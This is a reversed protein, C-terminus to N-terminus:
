QAVVFARAEVGDALHHEEFHTNGEQRAKVHTGFDALAIVKGYEADFALRDVAYMCQGPAFGRRQAIEEPAKGTEELLNALLLEAVVDHQLLETRAPLRVTFNTCIRPFDTPACVVSS